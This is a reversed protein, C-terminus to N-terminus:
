ACIGPSPTELEIQLHAGDQTRLPIQYHSVFTENQVALGHKAADTVEHAYVIGGLHHLVHAHHFLLDRVIPPPEPRCQTLRREARLGIAPLPFHAYRFADHELTVRALHEALEAVLDIILEGLARARVQQLEPVEQASATSEPAEGGLERKPTGALELPLPSALLSRFACLAGVRSLLRSRETREDLLANVAGIEVM